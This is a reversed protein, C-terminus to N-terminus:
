IKIEKFLSSWVIKFINEQIILQHNYKKISFVTSPHATTNTDWWILSLKKTCNSVM